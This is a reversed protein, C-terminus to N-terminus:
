SLQGRPRVMGLVLVTKHPFAYEYLPVSDATQELGVLTYGLARKSLLWEGLAEPKVQLCRCSPCRACRVAAVLLVPPVGGAGLGRQVSTTVAACSM